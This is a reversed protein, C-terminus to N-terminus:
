AGWIEYEKDADDVAAEDEAKDDEIEKNDAKAGGDVEETEEGCLFGRHGKINIFVSLLGSFVVVSATSPRSQLIVLNVPFSWSHGEFTTISPDCSERSIVSFSRFTMLSFTM